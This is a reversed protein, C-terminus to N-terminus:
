RKAKDINVLFLYTMAAAWWPGGLPWHISLAVLACAIVMGIQERRAKNM